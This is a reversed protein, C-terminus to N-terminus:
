GTHELTHNDEPNSASELRNLYVGIKRQDDDDLRAELYQDIREKIGEISLYQNEGSPSENLSKPTKPDYVTVLINGNDDVNNQLLLALYRDGPCQIHVYTSRNDHLNTMLVEYGKVGSKELVDNIEREYAEIQDEAARYDFQAVKQYKEKLRDLM